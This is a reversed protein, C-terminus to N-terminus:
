YDRRGSIGWLGQKIGMEEEEEKKKIKIKNM